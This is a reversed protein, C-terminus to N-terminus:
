AVTVAQHCKRQLIPVGLLPQVNQVWSGPISGSVSTRHVSVAFRIQDQRRIVDVRGLKDSLDGSIAIVGGRDHHAVVIRRFHACCEDFARREEVVRELIRIRRNQLRLVDGPQIIIVVLRNQEIVAIDQRGIMDPDLYGVLVLCRLRLGEHALVPHKCRFARYKHLQAVRDLDLKAWSSVVEGQRRQRRRVLQAAVILM